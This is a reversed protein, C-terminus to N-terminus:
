IVISLIYNYIIRLKRIVLTATSLATLNAGLGYEILFLILFCDYYLILLKRLILVQRRGNGHRQLWERIM